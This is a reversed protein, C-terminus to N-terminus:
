STAVPKATRAKLNDIALWLENLTYRKYLLGENGLCYGDVYALASIANNIERQDQISWIGMIVAKYGLKKAIRPIDALTNLSGYTIVGDFGARLLMRLDEEISSADPYKNAGPDFNVPAYAVWKLASLKHSFAEDMAFLQRTLFLCVFFSLLVKLPRYNM